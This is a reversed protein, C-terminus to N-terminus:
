LTQTALSTLRNRITGIDVPKSMYDDMGAAICLERDGDMANATLAIIHPQRQDASRIQRTAALGDMVPMQVDMLVVDYDKQHCLDVAEQGNNVLDPTISLKSLVKKIVLQNVPNDEAILVRLASLAEADGKHAQVDRTTRSPVDQAIMAKLNQRLFTPRVPKNVRIDFLGEDEALVNSSLLMMPANSLYSLERALSIGDMGPMHYDIICADFSQDAAENLATLPNDYEVVTVGDKVLIKRVIELNTHNDDVVLIRRGKLEPLPQHDSEPKSVTVYFHFETGKGETSEVSIRGGMLETLQRCITLGLGTGGYVRTTSSDAQTFPDFMGNQRDAPIGIGTDAVKFHVQQQHDANPNAEVWVSIVVEGEETFKIANSLLNLLIQRLRSMDGVCNAPVGEEIAYTLELDKEHALSAMLEAAEAVCQEISFHQLELELEGADIKSFDLIDNIITILAESSTRITEACERQDDDLQSELLLGTMAVVGNMPTRIEHSMNALFRSRTELADEAIRKAQMLAAQAERQSTIDGVRALYLEETGVSLSRIWVNGWYRSGDDRRVESEFTWPSDNGFQRQKYEKIKQSLESTLSEGPGNSIQAASGDAKGLWLADPAEEVLQQLLAQSHLIEEERSIITSLNVYCLASLTTLSLFYVASEALPTASYYLAVSYYITCLSIYLALTFRHKLTASSGVLMVFFTLVIAASFDSIYLNFSWVLAYVTILMLMYARMQRRVYESVYSALVLTISGIACLYRPGSFAPEEPMLTILTIDFLVVAIAGVVSIGRAKLLYSHDVQAKLNM